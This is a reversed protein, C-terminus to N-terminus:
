SEADPSDEKKRKGKRQKQEQEKGKDRERDMADRRIADMDPHDVRWQPENFREDIDRHKAIWDPDSVRDDIDPHAAIWDPDNYTDDVDVVAEEAEIPFLAGGPQRSEPLVYGREQMAQQQFLSMLTKRGRLDDMSASLATLTLLLTSDAALSARHRPTVGPKSSPRQSDDHGKQRGTDSNALYPVPGIKYESMIAM